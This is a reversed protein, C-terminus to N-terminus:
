KCDARDASEVFDPAWVMVMPKRRAEQLPLELLLLCLFFGLEPRRCYLESLQLYLTPTFKYKPPAAESHATRASELPQRYPKM